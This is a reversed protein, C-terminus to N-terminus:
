GYFEEGYFAKTFKRDKESIQEDPDDVNLASTYLQTADLASVLAAKADELDANELADHIESIKLAFEYDDSNVQAIYNWIQETSNASLIQEAIKITKDALEAYVFDGGGQWDVEQSIGGQEGAIVDTLRSKILNAQNDIQELGIYHRDMKHAAALTTGSGSFFDLVYDGPDTAVSIIDKMLREPKAFPFKTKDVWENDSVTKAKGTLSQIFEKLLIDSSVSSKKKKAKEEDEEKFVRRFPQDGTMFDYDDPFGIGGKEYWENFTDRTVAWSRKPNVPYEKGTKPNVMTFNSNQRQDITTQKTLDAKRWPRGPFDPTEIYKRQVTRGVIADSDDGVTYVLVWDFDQSFNFPVDSKGDRTKRPLTGVFHNAGFVEDAIVKLYHMGDEGVHIWISGNETLFPKSIELRNKMFTLWSSLKFNSNYSFSDTDKITRFYYPVDIYIMRVSNAFRDKISSLGILNNGKLVLNKSDHGNEGIYEVNSFAKPELLADVEDKAITRNLYPERVNRADEKSMGAKLVTDKYPFDLIVDDDDIISKGDVSLGIDNSFKTYGDYAYERASLAALFIDREFISVGDVVTVFSSALYDNGIIARILNSDNGELATRVVSRRITGDRVFEDGFVALAEELEKFFKTKVNEYEM